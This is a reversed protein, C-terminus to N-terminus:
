GVVAAATTAVVIVVISIRSGSATTSGTTGATAIFRTAADASPAIAGDGHPANGIGAVHRRQEPQGIGVTCDPSAADRQVRLLFFYDKPSSCEHCNIRERLKEILKERHPM